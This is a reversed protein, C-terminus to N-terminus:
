AQNKIKYLFRLAVLSIDDEQNSEGEYAMISQLLDTVVQLATLDNMIQVNYKLKEIGYHKGDLNRSNIVGDTYLLILDGYLLEITNNKYNRDKYIGL